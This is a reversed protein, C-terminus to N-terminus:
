YWRPDYLRDPAEAGVHQRNEGIPPLAVEENEAHAAENGPIYKGFESNLIFVDADEKEEVNLYANSETINHSTAHYLRRNKKVSASRTWAELPFSSDDLWEPAVLLTLKNKPILAVPVNTVLKRDPYARM